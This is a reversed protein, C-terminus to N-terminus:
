RAVYGGDVPLAHGTIFSAESTCLWVIARAVEEAEAFRDMPAMAISM